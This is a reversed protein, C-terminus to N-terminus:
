QFGNPLVASTTYQFEFSTDASGEKPIVIVFFKQDIDIEYWKGLDEKEL